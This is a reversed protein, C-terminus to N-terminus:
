VSQVRGDRDSRWQRLFEGGAIGAPDVAQARVTLQCARCSGAGSAAFHHGGGAPVVGAANTTLVFDDAVMANFTTLGSGQSAFQVSAIGPGSLASPRRAWM